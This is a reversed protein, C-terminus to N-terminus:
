KPAGQRNLMEEEVLTKAKEDLSGEDKFDGSRRLKDRMEQLRQTYPDAQGGRGEKGGMMAAKPDGGPSAALSPNFAPPANAVRSGDQGGPKAGPASAPTATRAVRTLVDASKAALDVRREGSSGQLIIHSPDIAKLTEGGLSAGLALFRQRASKSVLAFKLPGVNAVGLYRLEDTNVAPTATSDAPKASAVPAQEPRRPANSIHGLRTASGSADAAQAAPRTGAPAAGTGGPTTPTFDKASARPPKPLGVAAVAAAAVLVVVFGVQAARTFTTARNRGLTLVGM